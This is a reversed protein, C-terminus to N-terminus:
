VTLPSQPAYSRAILCLPMIGCYLRWDSEYIGNGKGLLFSRTALDFGMVVAYVARHASSERAPLSLALRSDRSLYIRFYFLWAIFLLGSFLWCHHVTSNCHV